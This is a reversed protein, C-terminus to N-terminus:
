VRSDKKLLECDNLWDRFTWFRISVAPENGLSGIAGVSFWFFGIWM